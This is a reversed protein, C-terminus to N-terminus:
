TWFINAKNKSKENYGLTKLHTWLRKPDGMSDELKSQFYSAKAKKVERQVENRLATFDQYTVDKNGKLILKRIKDRKRIKELIAHTIWPETRTKIRVDRKPAV